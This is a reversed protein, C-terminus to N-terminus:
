ETVRDGHADVGTAEQLLQDFGVQGSHEVGLRNGYRQPFWKALLKLRAEIKLKRHGLMDETRVTRKTGPVRVGEEDELSVDEVTEIEGPEVANAIDIIEDALWDAGILRAEEYRAAFDPDARRWLHVTTFAPM